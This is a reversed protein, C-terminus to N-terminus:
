RNWSIKRGARMAERLVEKGKTRVALGQRRQATQSLAPTSQMEFTAQVPDRYPASVVRFRDTLAEDGHLGRVVLSHAAKTSGTESAM